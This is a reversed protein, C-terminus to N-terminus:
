GRSQLSRYSTVLYASLYLPVSFINRDVLDFIDSHVVLPMTALGPHRGVTTIGTAIVMM